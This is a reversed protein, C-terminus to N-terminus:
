PSEQIVNEFWLYLESSITPWNGHNQHIKLFNFKLCEYFFVIFKKKIEVLLKHPVNNYM